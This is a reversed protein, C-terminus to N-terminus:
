SKPRAGRADLVARRLEPTVEPLVGFWLQFAPRAQHLLMGLGDVARLSRAKAAKLLGTELPAYVIDCVAAAPPLADLSLELPPHKEMGLSTANVLLAAGSLASERAEWEVVKIKNGFFRALSEARGRSRNALRIEPSGDQILADLIARAAGGAGLVLAPGSSAKWGPIGARLNEIFGYGDTTYGTLAGEAGVVVTNVAGIRKAAPDLTEMLPLAAEKHPITLNCGAFGKAALARLASALNDPAVELREYSGAIKHQKLWYGHLAPSLSHAVPWGM